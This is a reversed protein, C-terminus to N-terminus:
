RVGHGRYNAFYITNVMLGHTEGEQKERPGLYPKLAEKSEGQVSGVDYLM